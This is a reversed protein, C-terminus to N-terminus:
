PNAGTIDLRALVQGNYKFSNTEVSCASFISSCLSKICLLLISAAPSKKRYGPSCHGSFVLVASFVDVGRLDGVMDDVDDADSFEDLNCVIRVFLFFVSSLKSVIFRMNVM